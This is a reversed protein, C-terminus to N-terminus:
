EAYSQTPCKDTTSVNRTKFVSSRMNESSKVHACDLRFMDNHFCVYEFICFIEGGVFQFNESLFESIKKVNRNM